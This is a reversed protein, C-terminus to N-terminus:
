HLKSLIRRLDVEIQVLEPHTSPLIARRIQASKEYFIKADTFNGKLEHFLGMNKYTLALDPHNSPLANMKIRLSLDLHELAVDLQDINGYVTALNNHTASLNFHNSPLHALKIALAKQHCELAQSFKRENAYLCGMNNWCMAVDPHNEGFTKKWLTLAQNYYMLARKYDGKKQYVNALSNYSYGLSPNTSQLTQKKIEISKQHWELSSEYDGKEDLLLGLNYHCDVFNPHDSPFEKLLRRYFKEAEDYRSMKRLVKGFSLLNIEEVNYQCRIHEFVNRLRKHQETSLRMRIIWIRDKGDDQQHISDLRFISGFSFLIQEDNQYYSLSTINCYSKNLDTPPDAVIEFLVKEHDNTIEPNTLYTIMQHRHPNTLFFGNISLFEGVSNRFLQIEDHSMLSSRYTHLPNTCHNQEISRQIDRIFFRFILLLDLNQIRIAKTLLRCLFTERTYWRISQDSSYNTEFERIINLEHENGKYEEKCLSILEKDESAMPKIRLLYYTLLQSYIFQDNCEHTENETLFFSISLPETLKTQTCKEQNSRIKAILEDFKIIVGQVKPFRKAWRENREKDMCYVYISYVQQLHHISPVVEQGLRGSVILVFRDKPSSEIYQICEDARQFTKLHNILTRLRQQTEINEVSDNIIADLWILSFTELNKKSARASITM